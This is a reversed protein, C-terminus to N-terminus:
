EERYSPHEYINGIVECKSHWNMLKKYIRKGIRSTWINPYSIMFSAGSKSWYVEAIIGRNTKIIDGEYIEIGNKDKLGTYFQIDYRKWDDYHNLTWGLGTLDCIVGAQTIFVQEKDFMDHQKDWARFRIDKM